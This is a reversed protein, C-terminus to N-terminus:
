YLDNPSNCHQKGLTLLSIVIKLFLGIFHQLFFFTKVCIIFYSITSIKTAVAPRKKLYPLRRIRIQEVWRIKHTLTIAPRIRCLRSQDAGCFWHVMWKENSLYNFDIRHKKQKERAKLLQWITHLSGYISEVVSTTAAAAAVFFFNTEWNKRTKANVPIFQTHASKTKTAEHQQLWAILRVKLQLGNKIEKIEM